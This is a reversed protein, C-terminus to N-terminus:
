YYYYYYYIIQLLQDVPGGLGANSDVPWDLQLIHLKKFFYFSSSSSPKRFREEFRLYNFIVSKQRRTIM